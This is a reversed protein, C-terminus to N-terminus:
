RGPGVASTRESRPTRTRHAPATRRQVVLAGILLSQGILVVGVALITGKYADWVTLERNEVTAGEPLRAEDVGFRKLERGDFAVLNATTMLPLGAGAGSLIDGARNGLDTGHRRLDVMVGGVVGRGLYSSSLGYIPVKAVRRLMEVVDAPARAVGSGDLTMTVFLVLADHLAAVDTLMETFPVDTVYTFSVRSELARLDHRALRLWARDFASTGGVVVVHRTGPHLKLAAELTAQAGLKVVVGTVNPGFARARAAREDVLGFLIPANPFLEDRHRLAFDLAPEAIAIVLAPPAGGYKVRYLAALKGEYEGGGFRTTDITEEHIDVPEAWDRSLVSVIGERVIAGGPLGPSEATLILVSRSAAAAPSM